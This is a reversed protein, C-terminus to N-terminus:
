CNSSNLTVLLNHLCGSDVVKDRKTLNCPLQFQLNYLLYFHDDKNTIPYKGMFWWSLITHTWLRICNWTSFCIFVISFGIWNLNMWNLSPSSNRWRNDKAFHLAFYKFRKIIKGIIKKNKARNCLKLSARDCYCVM